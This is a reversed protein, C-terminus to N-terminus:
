AKLHVLALRKMMGLRPKTAYNFSYTFRSSYALSFGFFSPSGFGWIWIFDASSVLRTFDRTFDTGLLQAGLGTILGGSALLVTKAFPTVM